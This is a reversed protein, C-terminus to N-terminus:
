TSSQTRDKLYSPRLWWVAPHCGGSGVEVNRQLRQQGICRHASMTQERRIRIPITPCQNVNDSLPVQELTQRGRLKLCPFVSKPTGTGGVSVLKYQSSKIICIQRQTSYRWLRNEPVSFWSGKHLCCIDICPKVTKDPELGLPISSCCYSSILNSQLNLHLFSQPRKCNGSILEPSRSGRQARTKFDRPVCDTWGEVM